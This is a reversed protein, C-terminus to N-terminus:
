NSKWRGAFHHRVFKQGYYNLQAYGFANKHLILVDHVQFPKNADLTEDNVEVWNNSSSVRVQDEQLRGYQIMHEVVARTFLFPGTISLVDDDTPHENKGVLAVTENVLQVTRKLLPHKPQSAITWQVVQFRRFKEEGYDRFEMGLIMRIPIASIWQWENPPLPRVKMIRKWELVDQEKAISNWTDIPTLCEVDLDFYVGGHQYLILYRWMDARMVPKKFGDYLSLYEQFFNAIFERSSEDDYSRVEYNPNLAQCREQFRREQSSQQSASRKTWFMNAPFLTEDTENTTQTTENTRGQFPPPKWPASSGSSKSLALFSKFFSLLSLVFSLLILTWLKIRNVHKTRLLSSPPPQLSSSCSM